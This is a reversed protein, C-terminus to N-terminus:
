VNKTPVYVQVVTVNFLKGQFCISIIRNGKLNCGLVANGVIKNVIIGVGNTRLSEQGCYCIKMQM